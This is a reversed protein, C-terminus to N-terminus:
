CIDVGDFLPKGARPGSHRAVDSEINPYIITHSARHDM